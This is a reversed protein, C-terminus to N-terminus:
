KPIEEHEVARIDDCKVLWLFEGEKEAPYKACIWSDFLVIDGKKVIEVGESVELVTGKEEYTQRDSAIFAKHELPEILLHGNVPVISM